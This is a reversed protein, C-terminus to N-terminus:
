QAEGLCHNESAYGNGYQVKGNSKILLDVTLDQAPDFEVACFDSPPDARSSGRLWQAIEVRALHPSNYDAMLEAIEELFIAFGDNAALQPQYLVEFLVGGTPLVFSVKVDGHEAGNDCYHFMFKATTEEATHHDAPRCKVQSGTSILTEIQGYASQSLLHSSTLGPEWVFDDLVGEPEVAVDEDANNEAWVPYAGLVMLTVVTAFWTVARLLPVAAEGRPNVPTDM